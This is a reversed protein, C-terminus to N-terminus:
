LLGCKSRAYKPSFIIFKSLCFHGLINGNSQAVEDKTFTM